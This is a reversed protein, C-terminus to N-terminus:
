TRCALLASPSHDDCWTTLSTTIKLASHNLLGLQHAKSVAARRNNVGLKTYIHKTHTRVTNLSVM